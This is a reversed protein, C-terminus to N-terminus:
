NPDLSNRSVQQQDVEIVALLWRASKFAMDAETQEIQGVNGAEIAKLLCDVDCQEIGPYKVILMRVLIQELECTLLQDLDFPDHGLSPMKEQSM